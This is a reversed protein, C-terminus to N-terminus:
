KKCVTVLARSKVNVQLYIEADYLPGYEGVGLQQLIKINDRSIELGLYMYLWM